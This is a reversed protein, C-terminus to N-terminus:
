FEPCKFVLLMELCRFIQSDEKQSLELVALM